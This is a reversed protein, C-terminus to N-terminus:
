NDLSVSTVMAAAPAHGSCGCEAEWLRAGEVVPMFWLWDLHGEPAGAPPLCSILFAVNSCLHIREAGFYFSDCFAGWKFFFGSLHWLCLFMQFCYCKIKIRPWVVNIVSSGAHKM